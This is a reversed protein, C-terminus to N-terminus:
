MAAWCMAQVQSQRLHGRAGREGVEMILHGELSTTLICIRVGATATSPPSLSQLELLGGLVTSAAPWPGYKSHISRSWHNEISAKLIRLAWALEPDMPQPTPKLITKM